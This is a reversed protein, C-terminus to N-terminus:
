LILVICVIRLFIQGFLIEDLGGDTSIAAKFKKTFERHINYLMEVNSFVDEIEKPTILKNTRIPKM